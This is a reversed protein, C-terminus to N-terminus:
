SIQIKPRWKPFSDVSYFFMVGYKKAPKSKTKSINRICVVRLKGLSFLSRNNFSFRFFGKTQSFSLTAIVWSIIEWQQKTLELPYASSSASEFKKQRSSVRPSSELDTFYTKKPKEEEKLFWRWTNTILNGSKGTPIQIIHKKALM